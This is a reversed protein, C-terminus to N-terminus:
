LQIMLNLITKIPHSAPRPSPMEMSTSQASLSFSYLVSILDFDCRKSTSELCKLGSVRGWRSLEKSFWNICKTGLGNESKNLIRTKKEGAYNLDVPGINRRVAELLCITKKAFSLTDKCFQEADSFTTKKIDYDRQLIAIEDVINSKKSDDEEMTKILRVKQELKKHAVGLWIESAAKFSYAMVSFSLMFDKDLIDDELVKNWDDCHVPLGQSNLIMLMLTETSTLRLIDESTADEDRAIGELARLLTRDAPTETMKKRKNLAAKAMRALSKQEDTM